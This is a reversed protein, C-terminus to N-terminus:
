KKRSDLWSQFDEDITKKISRPPSVNGIKKKKMYELEEKLTSFEKKRKFNIILETYTDYLKKVIEEETLKISNDGFVQNLIFNDSNTKIKSKLNYKLLEPSIQDELKIDIPDRTKLPNNFLNDLGQEKKLEEMVQTMEYTNKACIKLFEPILSNLMRVLKLYDDNLTKVRLKGDPGSILSIYLGYENIGTKQKLYSGLQTLAIKEGKKQAQAIIKKVIQTKLHPDSFDPNNEELESSTTITNVLKFIEFKEGFKKQIKKQMIKNTTQFLEKYITGKTNYVAAYKSNYFEQLKKKAFNYAQNDAKKYEEDNEYMSPNFFKDYDPHYIIFRAFQGIIEKLIYYDKDIELTENKTELYKLYKMNTLSDFYELKMGVKIETKRGRLDYVWPYKKVVVYDFREGLEPARIGLMEPELQKMREVFLKVTINGPKPKETIPDIGAPKYKASKRFLEPNWDSVSVYELKSEVIEKLTKENDLSFAEKFLSYCVTKLLNSSGRKKLELGRIFLTKSKIFDDLSCNPECISLNVVGVHAIGIYKKKGLLCYPFLIEEYAMSLFRTGNDQYLLDGIENKYKDLVEMSIEIMKTWYTKKNIQNTEYESDILEFCSEPCSLYVSDTNHVILKGVGAGFTHDETELDYVYDNWNGLPIIQNTKPFWFLNPYHYYHWAHKCNESFNYWIKLDKPFNRYLLPTDAQISEPQIKLGERTLLSHDETTEVWGWPTIVRFVRKQTYHRIIKLIRTWGSNSWVELNEPFSYEKGDFVQYTKSLHQIELFEIRDGNRILVPTNGVVSDGYKIDFGKKESYTKVLKLNKQGYTTVGGALHIVFFSSRANGLEGYFTNMFVKLALQKINFYNINFSIEEYIESINQKLRELNSESDYIEKRIFEEIEELNEVLDQHFKKGSNKYDRIRKDKEELLFKEIILYQNELTESKLKDLSYSGFLKDLLEKPKQYYEMKRKLNKRQDFLKKLIVPYLGMGSYNNKPNHQVIWGKIETKESGEGYNFKVKIFKYPQNWKDKKQDLYNRFNKDLVLKEPSFNYTMILSPYLSSFDLGACPRDPKPDPESRNLKTQKTDRYLGKKPPIVHAGPFKRSDKKESGISSFALNWEKKFSEALVVNRVKSGYAKYIADYITTYTLSGTERYDQIIYRINLLDQCRKADVNCYHVVQTNLELLDLSESYTLNLSSYPGTSLEPTLKLVEFLKSEPKLNLNKLNEQIEPFSQNPFNYVLSDMLKFIRFMTQYPMDEKSGLKNLMLFYNLSSKESTPYIKRFINRVDMSIMGPTKLFEPDVNSDAELKVKETKSGALIRKESDSSFKLCSTKTIMFDMLNYAEARRLIFPWDYLGDNFGAYLDPSMQELLLAKTKLIEIQNKCQIILCDPRPKTLMDTINVVILPERSWYWYFSNSEMRVVDEEKGSKNFVNKPLPINGTFTKAETETDWCGIMTKDRILKNWKKTDSQIDIGIEKLDQFDEADLVLTYPIINKKFLNIETDIRYNRVQNWGTLNFRLERAIKRHYCTLDDNSTELILKIEGEANIFEFYNERFYKISKVRSYNNNFRIRYYSTETEQFYKGPFHKILNISEPYIKNNNLIHKINELFDSDSIGEPVRLDFFPKINELIIGMKSGDQAIGILVLKYFFWNKQKPDSWHYDIVDNPLFYIPNKEEINKKLVQHEEPNIFDIRKPLKESFKESDEFNIIKGNFKEGM